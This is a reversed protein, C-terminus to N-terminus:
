RAAKNMSIRTFFVHTRMYILVMVLSYYLVNHIVAPLLIHKQRMNQKITIPVGASRPYGITDLSIPYRTNLFNFRFIFPTNCLNM